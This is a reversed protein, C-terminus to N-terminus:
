LSEPSPMGGASEDREESGLLEAAALVERLLLSALSHGLIKVVRVLLSLRTRGVSELRASDVCALPLAAESITKSLLGPIVTGLVRSLPSLVARVALAAEDVNVAVDIVAVPGIVFGITAADVLM